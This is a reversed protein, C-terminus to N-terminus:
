VGLYNKHFLIQVKMLPRADPDECTYNFTNAGVQMAMGVFNSDRSCMQISNVGNIEVTPPAATFDIDLVDGDKFTTVVQVHKDDKTFTPNKVAGDFECHIRYYCEVDGSNYITNLGDFLSVSAPAGVPYKRGDPMPERFHCVYPFGFMPKDDTLANENGDESKMWPDTCLLTFSAQCPWGQKKLPVDVAVLQGECWRTRGLHTVHAEFSFKPNFFSLAQNRVAQPDGNGAYIVSATRECEEVRKAVLSSGDTLVNASTTVTLALDLFGDLGDQSIAWGGQWNGEFTMEQGDSRVVRMSTSPYVIM